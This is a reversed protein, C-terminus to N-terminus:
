WLLKKGAADLPAMLNIVGVVLFFALFGLFINRLRDQVQLHWCCPHISQWIMVHHLVKVVDVQMQVRNSPTPVRISRKSFRCHGSHVFTSDITMPAHNDLM